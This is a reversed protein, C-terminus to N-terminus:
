DDKFDAYLIEEQAITDIVEDTLESLFDDKSMIGLYIKQHTSPILFEHYIYKRDLQNITVDGLYLIVSRNPVKVIVMNDLKPQQRFSAHSTELSLGTIAYLSGKKLNKM